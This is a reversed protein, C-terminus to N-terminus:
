SIKIEQCYTCECGHISAAESSRSSRLPALDGLLVHTLMSSIFDDTYKVRQEKTMTLDVKQSYDRARKGDRRMTEIWDENNCTIHAISIRQINFFAKITNPAMMWPDM